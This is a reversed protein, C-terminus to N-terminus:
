KKKLSHWKTSPNAKHLNVVIRKGLSVKCTSTSPNIEETLEPIDLAWVLSADSNVPVELRLSKRDFDCKVRDSSESIHPLISADDVYLTVKHDDDSWSYKEIKRRVVVPGIPEGEGLKVPTGGTIIGPGEVVKADPPVVFEVSRSHAYYYSNKGYADISTRLKSDGANGESARNNPTLDSESDSM